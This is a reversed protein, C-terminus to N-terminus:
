REFFGRDLDADNSYGRSEWYGRYGEDESVEIQTIWKVWKYGWKDEAVLQFPFGREPPLTVGNMEYAMMIDKSTIFDIPLSSSYGDYAHFIVTNARENVGAEELLDMVKVGEWLIKVSWGEVCHITVVKESAEFGELVEGYTYNRPSEVLGTVSLRYAEPDIDQPGRISNERFGEISGLKEGMYERIEVSDLQVAGRSKLYSNVGYASAVLAIIAVFVLSNSRPM